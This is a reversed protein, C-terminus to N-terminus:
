CPIRGLYKHENVEKLLRSLWIVNQKQREVRVRCPDTFNVAESKRRLLM